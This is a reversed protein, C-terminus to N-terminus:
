VSTWKPPNLPCNSTGLLLKGSSCGCKKCRAIKSQGLEEWYECGRCISLRKNWQESTVIPRGAKNWSILSNALNKALGFFGLKEASVEYHEKQNNSEASVNTNDKKTNNAEPSPTPTPMPPRTASSTDTSKNIYRQFIKGM